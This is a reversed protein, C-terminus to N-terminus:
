DFHIPQFINIGNHSYIRKFYRSDSFKNLNKAYLQKELQGVYIYDIHYKKIITRCQDIDSTEFMLIVSHFREGVEDPRGHEQSSVKWEGVATRREAFIPIFSYSYQVKYKKDTGPYNPNSQIIADKPLNKNIWNAAEMDSNRVFTSPRSIDSAIFNDMFFSPFGALLVFVSLMKIRNTQFSLNWLYATFALLCLPIIRSAKLLGFFTETPNTVFFNFFLAISFLIIYPYVWSRLLKENNILKTLGAIGLLLMPGFELFFYISSVLIFFWNFRLQLVSKGTQFSYMEIAFLIAYIIGSCILSLIHNKLSFIQQKEKYYYIATSFTMCGLWFGIMIGNTADVGFLLGTLIGILCYGYPNAEKKYITFIMLMIAMGLSAQPQVLFFRYFTHSFGSFVPLKYGLLSILSNGTLLTWMKMFVIYLYSFSYCCLSLFILMLLHKRKNIISKFFLFLAATSLLSYILVTLQLLKQPALKIFDINILMAPYLYALWYYSLKEGSFFFSDLPVGRSLSVVHVMRNIFDHGFLWTFLYKNDTFTGLNKFPFYFFLTVILFAILLFDTDGCRVTKNSIPILKKNIMFLMITIPLVTLIFFITLLNWGILYIIVSSILSGVATGTVTGWVVGELLKGNKYCVPYVILHGWASLLFFIILCLAIQILNINMVLFVCTLSVVWAVFLSFIVTQKGIGRLANSETNIDSIFKM